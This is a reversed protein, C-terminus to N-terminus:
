KHTPYSERIQDYSRFSL